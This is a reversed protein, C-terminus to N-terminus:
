APHYSDGGVVEYYFELERVTEGPLVNWGDVIIPSDAMASKVAALDLNEYGPNDNAIVVIDYTTAEFLELLEDTIQVPNADLDEIKWREANQDYADVTGYNRLEDIIGSAPTHRIDNTAPQGKFAVGLVLSRVGTQRATQSFASRILQRTVSPMSENIARGTRIFQQIEETLGDSATERLSDILLYPDKPLCGGGVGAGPKMINNRDYGANALKILRQGDLGHQRAIQGFANGIAINIDRYTNDFLKIMEAAELSDVEIIIEAIESFLEAAHDQSKQDYGGVIQPLNRLEALADGQITREPAHLYYLDKPIEIASRAKVIDLMERATGVSITSRIVISDQPQIFDAVSEIATQLASTDPTGDELPSGVALIYVSRDSTNTETLSEQFALTGMKQYTQITQKLGKEEFHPIGQQLSRLRKRDHEIGLIDFGSRAMTATLTLGVYGQGIVCVGLEDLSM